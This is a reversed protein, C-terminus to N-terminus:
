FSLTGARHNDCGWWTSGMRGNLAFRTGAPINISGNSTLAFNKGNPVSDWQETYTFQTGATNRLGLRTYNTTNNTLYMSITGAYQHTRFTAYRVLTGDRNLDGSVAVQTAFAATAALLCIMLAATFVFRRTWNNSMRFERKRPRYFTRTTESLSVIVTGRESSEEELLSLPRPM